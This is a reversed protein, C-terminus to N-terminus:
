AAEFEGYDLSGGGDEDFKRFAGEITSGQAEATGRIAAGLQAKVAGQRRRLIGAGSLAGRTEAAAAAAAAPQGCGRCAHTCLTRAFRAHTRVLLQLAEERAKNRAYALQEESVGAGAAAIRGAWRDAARVRELEQREAQHVSGTPAHLYHCRWFTSDYPFRLWTQIIISGM